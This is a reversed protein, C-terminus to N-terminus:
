VMESNLLEIQSRCVYISKTMCIPVVLFVENAAIQLLLILVLDEEM